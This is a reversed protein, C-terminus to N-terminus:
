PRWRRRLWLANLVVSVSSCSMAGAALMPHLLGAVAIPILLLNYSFAWFLGAYIRKMTATSLRIARPLADLDGGVLVVHGAEMAIDTGGGIAIGIDSAALAPADNIGDGVMAVIYGQKQLETVQAQKDAPMVEALVHRSNIGVEHAVSEAALPHDGTMLIVQLGLRNLQRVVGRANPRLRESLGILGVAQGDVAVAVATRVRQLLEDRQELMAEIGAMNEERLASVRGVVVCKENVRGKVGAGTTSQFEFVPQLELNREHAHGVIAKAVPHESQSEVSAALQLLQDSDLEGQVVVVQKVASRGITLTGTKDLIVHTLRGGRELAVADKILIGNRAGLGIAVTIATPTALGLACPCAVILVAVTAQLGAQWYGSLSWGGFTLVAVALVAPVFVAAIKDTLRQIDAKSCQARTVMEVVQALLTSQGTQTARFQFAGTLNVTGANVRSNPGVDVPESEGTFAARDVTSQGQVVVGDVPIRQGPKVLVVDDPVVEDIDVVREQGKKMVTAQPPQLDMLSEIAAAASHKARLELFQGFSVLVLIVAATDFYVTAIDLAMAAVSSLYAVSTGLAVLTDMNARLRVMGRWAGRYFPYGLILQIPTALCFQIRVSLISHWVMALILTGAALVAAAPLIWPKVGAMLRPLAVMSASRVTPQEDGDGVVDYGVGRVADIVAEVPAKTPDHLVMAQSTVLNISASSVGPVGRLGAEVRSVCSACHMGQIHLITHTM